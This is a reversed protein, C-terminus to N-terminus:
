SQNSGETRQRKTGGDGDKSIAVAHPTNPREADLSGVASATRAAFTDAANTDMPVRDSDSDSDQHAEPHGTAAGAAVAAAALAKRAKMLPLVDDALLDESSSDSSELLARRSYSAAPSSSSSTELDSSARADDSGSATARMAKAREALWTSALMSTPCPRRLLLGACRLEEGAETQAMGNSNTSSKGAPKRGARRSRSAKRRRRPKPKDFADDSSESDSSLVAAM